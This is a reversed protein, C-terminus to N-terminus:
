DHHVQQTNVQALLADLDTTIAEIEDMVQDTQSVLQDSGEKKIRAQKRLDQTLDQVEYRLRSAYDRGTPVDMEMTIPHFVFRDLLLQLIAAIPIAMLAGAIGFLSSFAFIALLSVFPNVGVAKRMIRPVLLSNEAQQILITAVIVWILKSPSISLAVVGAPIAGLLPGIMPVAEMVGAILALVLANPLGILLYAVLAMIGIILSLAAQGALFFVLKTEMASILESINERQDRPVLLLLSQVIRPGDLTWHFALIIIAAFILIFKVSTTVYGLAQIASALVQEGTQELPELGPLTAPLFESLRVIWQNPYNVMWERLNQYYGPVESAITTGQEIVLPFLVVVFSILLTLLVLYVFIVGAVRPIKRRNLWTVVPRMVTGMVISIFLIFVIYSFRYILWFSIGICILVLTAWVVRRFSWRDQQPPPHLAM